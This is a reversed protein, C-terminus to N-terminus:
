RRPKHVEAFIREYDEGVTKLFETLERSAGRTQNVHADLELDETMDRLGERRARLAEVLVIFNPENRLNGIARLVKPAHLTNTTM